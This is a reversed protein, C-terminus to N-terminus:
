ALIHGFVSVPMKNGNTEIVNTERLKPRELLLSVVVVVPGDLMESTEDDGMM